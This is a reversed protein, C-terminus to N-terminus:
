ILYIKNLRVDIGLLTRQLYSCHFTPPISPFQLVIPTDEICQLYPLKSLGNRVYVATGGSPSTGVMRPRDINFLVFKAVKVSTDKYFKTESVFMIILYNSSIFDKFRSAQRILGSANRIGVTLSKLNRLGPIKDFLFISRFVSWNFPLSVLCM